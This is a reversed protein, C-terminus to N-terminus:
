IWAVLTLEFTYGAPLGTIHLITISDNEQTYTVFPAGDVYVRSNDLNRARKVDIGTILTSSRLKFSITTTPIGSADVEVEIKKITCAINDALSINNNFANFLSEFATNISGSLKDVLSQDKADFDTKFIRRFNGIRM